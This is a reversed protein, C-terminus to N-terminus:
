HPTDYDPNPPPPLVNGIMGHLDGRPFTKVMDKILEDSDGYQKQLRKLEAMLEQRIKAYAPDDNVNNMEMPDKKLDYMEWDNNDYYFHILKYRKTRVGYQRKVAGMGPFEYFHYYMSKRWDAPTRGNMLPRLSRGQMDKPIKVGAFDLFTEAFDLNLVIDDSVQGPKIEKPYRVVLPIRISEEYMFRKDYLGHEGLFFGNDTTYVVITNESLGAEDLYDLVRGINDDVAKNTRMYDKIYRQYKWLSLKKGKLKAKHFAKNKPGYAKNWVKLQEENLNYPPTLKFHEDLIDRDLTIWQNRIGRGRTSQDELYNEPVPMEVDDYLTLDRLSPKWNQHPAKHQYMLLFPKDPKRKNKLWDLASDTVVDTVYGEYKVLKGMEIMFPNYYVGQGPLINWYDFGTPDSKLHWKGVVATQYGAKRLLKPFTQQRNDFKIANSIVGNIHSYKGTLITARSPECLSNLVFCNSFRIGEKAIRDINPTKVIDAYRGGYCSIAHAAHDDTMIYLINPRDDEKGEGTQSIELGACGPLLSSAAVSAVATGMTKLFNRRTQTSM